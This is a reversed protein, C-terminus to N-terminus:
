NNCNCGQINFHLDIRVNVGSLKDDFLAKDQGEQVFPLGRVTENQWDSVYRYNKVIANKMRNSWLNRLPTIIKTHHTDTTWMDGIGLGEGVMLCRDLIFMDITWVEYSQFEDTVESQLPERIWVFPVDNVQALADDQREIQTDRLKASYFFVDSTTATMTYPEAVISGASIVVYENTLVETLTYTKGMWFINKGEALHITDCSYLKYGELNGLGNLVIEVDDIYFVLDLQEIINKLIKRADIM